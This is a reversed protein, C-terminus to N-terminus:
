KYVITLFSGRLNQTCDNIKHIPNQSYRSLLVKCENVRIKTKLM